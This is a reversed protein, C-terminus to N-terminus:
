SGSSNAIIANVTPPRYRSNAAYLDDALRGIARALPSDGLETLTRGAVLARDVTPQDEPLFHLGTTRAFGAVMGAIDRESWGLSPRMRNVVVHADRGREQLEVLGRALRSLGVPDASGVVVVEDAVDLAGLTMQNRGPRSGYDAGPDDELSFGTDVVVEAQERAVELLHEVTGNRVEIWRDGRPLGTVVSLHSDIGRQVSGFREELQGAAALRAASLLGSVEDLIGLQQAVAGGYPDADVLVTRRKRRGLEAALAAAVTTRGPAGAPGWVAVVRGAAPPGPPPPTSPAPVRVVTEPSEEDLVAGPLADLDDDTVVRPIGIRAARLRGGDLTAGGAAIAVPRVAYRRLLDVAARDLGPSDLGLVAVDAQGASAAALLDDVDVCRKLVVIGPHDGLRQLVAPEWAAGSAVVIVLAKDAM